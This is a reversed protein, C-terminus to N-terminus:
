LNGARHRTRVLDAFITAARPRRKVGVPQTTIYIGKGHVPAVQRDAAPEGMARVPFHHVQVVNGLAVDGVAGCNGRGTVANVKGNTILYHIM